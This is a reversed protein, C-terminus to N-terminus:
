INELNLMGCAELLNLHAQRQKYITQCYELEANQLDTEAIIRETITSLGQEYQKIMIQLNKKAINRKKAAVVILQNSLELENISKELNLNM